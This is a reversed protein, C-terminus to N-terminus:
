NIKLNGKISFKVSDGLFMKQNGAISYNTLTIKNYINEFEMKLLRSSRYLSNGEQYLAEIKRLNSPSGQFYVKLYEVPLKRKVTFSRITLNSKPDPKNEITYADINIPKNIIRLQRFVDLENSWLLTDHSSLHATDSKGNLTTEKILIIKKPPLYSIQANILSDINYYHANVEKKQNCSLSILSLPAIMLLTKVTERLTYILSPFVPHVNDPNPGSLPGLYPTTIKKLNTKM